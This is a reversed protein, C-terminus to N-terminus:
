NDMTVSAAGGLTHMRTGFLVHSWMCVHMCTCADTHVNACLCEDRADMLECSPMGAGRDHTHTEECIPLCGDWVHMWKCTTMFASMVHMCESAGPCCGDCAHELAVRAGICWQM